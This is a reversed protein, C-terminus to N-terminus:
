FPSFSVECFSSIVISLRGCETYSGMMSMALYGSDYTPCHLAVALNLNRSARYRIIDTSRYSLSSRGQGRREAM